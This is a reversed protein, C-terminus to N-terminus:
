ADPQDLNMLVSPLAKQHELRKQWNLNPGFVKCDGATPTPLLALDDRERQTLSL